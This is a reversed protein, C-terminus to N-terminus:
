DLIYKENTDKPLYKVDFMDYQAYKTSVRHSTMVDLSDVALRTYKQLSSRVSPKTVLGTKVQYGRLQPICVLVRFLAVPHLSPVWPKTDSGKAKAKNRFM